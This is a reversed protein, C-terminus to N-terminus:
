ASKGTTKKAVAKKAATKKATAKKATAKKTTAKKAVAKKAVAKSATTKKATVKKAASTATKRGLTPSAEARPKSDGIATIEVQTYAQRHGQTRRYDKRRKMKFVRIKDGRGHGLVKAAVSPPSKLSLKGGDVVLLVREFRITSGAEAGLKEVKLQDGVAVKYQKGGTEIVAYM